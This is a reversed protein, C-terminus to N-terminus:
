NIAQLASDQPLLAKVLELLKKRSPKVDLAVGPVARGGPKVTFFLVQNCKFSLLMHQTDLGGATLQFAM